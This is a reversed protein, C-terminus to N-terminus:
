QVRSCDINPSIQYPINVGCKRPLGAALNLNNNNYPINRIANKICNCVTKRDPTTQAQNFLTRVGNCCQGPVTAGGNVIYPVCPSLDTMVQDCTVANAKPSCLALCVILLSLLRAVLSSAM